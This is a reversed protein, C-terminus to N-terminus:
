PKQTFISQFTQARERNVGLDSYGVRSASRLHLLQSASDIRIEFDDVFRFLSSTFTAHIYNADAQAVAGEMAQLTQRLKSTLKEMDIRAVSSSTDVASSSQEALSIPKQTILYAPPIPIPPFYHEQDKPYESQICNPSSPCKELLGQVLQRQVPPASCAM